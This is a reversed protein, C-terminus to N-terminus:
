CVYFMSYEKAAFAVPTFNAFLKGQCLTDHMM